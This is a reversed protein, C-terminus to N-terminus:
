RMCTSIFPSLCVRSPLSSLASSLKFRCRISVNSIDSPTFDRESPETTNLPLLIIRNHGTPSYFPLLLFPVSVSLILFFLFKVSHVRSFLQSRGGYINGYQQSTLFLPTLRGPLLFLYPSLSM